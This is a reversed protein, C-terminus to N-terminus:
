SIYLRRINVTKKWRKIRWYMKLDTCGFKEKKSPKASSIEMNLNGDFHFVILFSDNKRKKKKKKKKKQM